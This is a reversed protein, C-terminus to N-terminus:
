PIRTFRISLMLKVPIKVATEKRLDYPILLSNAFKLLFSCRHAEVLAIVASAALIRRQAHLWSRRRPPEVPGADFITATHFKTACAHRRSERISRRGLASLPMTLEVSHKQRFALELGIPTPVEFVDLRAALIKTGTGDFRLL